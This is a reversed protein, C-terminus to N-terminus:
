DGFVRLTYAALYSEPLWAHGGEGWQPGWSNRVLVHTENTAADKGLGVGIVAHCGPQVERSFPVRPSSPAAFYFDQTLRIILGISRSALLASFVDVVRLGADRFPHAFLPQNPLLIAHATEPEVDRYPVDADFPQGPAAVVSLGPRLSMGNEPQWGSTLAAAQRYLFEPSLLGPQGNREGNLDSLAFALCTPRRGQDRAPGHTHRLDVSAVITM